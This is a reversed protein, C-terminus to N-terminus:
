PVFTQRSTRRANLSRLQEATYAIHSRIWGIVMARAREGAEGSEGAGEDCEDWLAFLVARREDADHTSTWLRQLNSQMIEGSKAYQQSRYQAGREAREARTDDLIKLKRSANPDIGAKRMLYSTLDLKGGLLSVGSANQNPHEINCMFASHEDCTATVDHEHNNATAPDTAEAWAAVYEGAEHAARQVTAKSFNVHGDADGKDHFRATGDRDIEVTTVADDIKGRGGAADDVVGSHAAQQPGHGPAAAIDELSADGPHLEPQRMAMLSHSPETSSSRTSTAVENHSTTTGGSLAALQKAAQGRSVAAIPAHLEHPAIIDTDLWTVEIIEDRHPRASFTPWVVFVDSAPPRIAAILLVHLGASILLVRWM